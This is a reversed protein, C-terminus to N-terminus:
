TTAGTQTKEGGEARSIIDKERDEYFAIWDANSAVWDKADKLQGSSVLGALESLWGHTSKVATLLEPASAILRANDDLEVFTGNWKRSNTDSEYTLYFEGSSTAITRGAQLEWEGPTHGNM